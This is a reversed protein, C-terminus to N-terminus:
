IAGQNLVKNNAAVACTDGHYFLTPPGATWTDSAIDYIEMTNLPTSDANSAWGGVVYIKGPVVSFNHKVHAFCGQQAAVKM